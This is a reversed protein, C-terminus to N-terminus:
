EAGDFVVPIDMKHSSVIRIEREGAQEAYSGSVVRRKRDSIAKFRLNTLSCITGEIM